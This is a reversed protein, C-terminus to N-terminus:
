PAFWDKIHRVNKNTVAMVDFRFGREPEGIEALYAHAARIIAATKKAGIALEPEADPSRRAKVEVFVLQDGDLAVIDIEGHRSRYRRMLITYGLDALYRAATKEAEVGFAYADM